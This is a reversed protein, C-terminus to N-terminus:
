KPFLLKVSFMARWDPGRVPSEVNKFAQLKFDVPQKGSKVPRGFGGGVPVTWRNDRDSERNATIVPTSILYWDRDFNYDIFYQFTM